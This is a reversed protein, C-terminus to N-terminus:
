CLLPMNLIDEFPEGFIESPGRHIFSIQDKENALKVEIDELVWILLRKGKRKAPQAETSWCYHYCPPHL